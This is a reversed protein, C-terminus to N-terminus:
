AINQFEMARRMLAYHQNSAAVIVFTLSSVLAIGTLAPEGFFSAILGSGGALLLALTGGIAVNIWFLTSIEISQYPRRPPRMPRVLISLHRPLPWWRLVMTVLGFDSPGLLRALVITSALQVFINM